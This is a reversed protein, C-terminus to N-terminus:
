RYQLSSYPVEAAPRCLGKLGEIMEQWLGATIKENEFGGSNSFWVLRTNNVYKRCIDGHYPACYGQEVTKVSSIFIFCCSLILSVCM